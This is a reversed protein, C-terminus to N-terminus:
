ENFRRGDIRRDGDYEIVSSAAPGAGRTPYVGSNEALWAQALCLGYRACDRMDNPIGPHKKVWVLRANGRSDLKEELAGNCLQTLLEIDIAAERALALSAPQGPKRDDLREQLDTEWYDTNVHLLLIPADSRSKDSVTAVRFAQGSLDTSSGKIPVVAPYHARCFDYTDKTNWGSDVGAVVPRLPEGGDAHPYSGCIIPQWIEELTLRMGWHVLWAQEEYGHAMVWYVVFGGDAAQRDITVTLFLGGEPVTGRKTEIALRKGVTEPESSKSRYEWTEGKDENIWQRLEAPKMQKSLFSAVMDGWGHFLAYFVSLQSGYDSEWLLPTGTMYSLDDPPLERARMAKDHDPKCGAPIWVGQRIMAPRHIDDIRGECFKCVYHATKRAHSTSYRMGDRKTEWFIGGPTKGDGFEITQFKCCHPCPVFYRHNTSQMRGGEVRSRGTITPTSEMIFKRDPYEAGRKQFRPLPDGEESTALHTWKDIENAHGVRISKDALRSKGRPWAGYCISRSLKIEHKAQRHEIPVQDALRPCHSLMQWFRHFVAKCNTEDPTAFMTEGPQLDMQMMLMSMGFNSKFMRAAWQLWINRFQVCDFAWCPGQPATVWPVMYENFAAGTQTRYNKRIWDAATEQKVPRLADAFFDLVTPKM